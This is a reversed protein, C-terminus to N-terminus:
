DSHEKVLDLCVGGWGGVHRQGGVLEERACGGVWKRNRGSGQESKWPELNSEKAQFVWGM